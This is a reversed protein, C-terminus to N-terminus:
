SRKRLDDLNGEWKVKGRLNLLEKRRKVRAFKRLAENIVETKTLGPAFAMAAALAEDNINLTTRM